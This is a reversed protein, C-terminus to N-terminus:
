RDCPFTVSKFDTWSGGGGFQFYEGSIQKIATRVLNAFMDYMECDWQEEEAESAFEMRNRVSSCYWKKEHTAFLESYGYKGSAADGGIIIYHTLGSEENEYSDIYPTETSMLDTIDKKEKGNWYYVRGNNESLLYNATNTDGFGSVRKGEVVIKTGDLMTFTNNKLPYAEGVLDAVGEGSEAPPEEPNKDETEADETLPAATQINGPSETVETKEATESDDPTKESIYTEITESEPLDTQESTDSINGTLTSLNSRLGFFGTSVATFGLCAAAAAAIFAPAKRFKKSPATVFVPEVTEGLDSLELNDKAQKGLREMVTNQIKETSINTEADSEVANDFMKKIDNDKM